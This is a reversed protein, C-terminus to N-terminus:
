ANLPFMVKDRKIDTHIKWRTIGSLAAGAGWLQKIRWREVGCGLALSVIGGTSEVGKMNHHHVTTSSELECLQAQVEGSELRGDDMTLQFCGVVDDGNACWQRGVVCNAAGSSSVSFVPSSSASIRAFFNRSNAAWARESASCISIFRTLALNSLSWPSSLRCDLMESSSTLSTWFRISWNCLYKSEDSAVSGVVAVVVVVVVVVIWDSDVVLSEGFSSDMAFLLLSSSGWIMKSFREFSSWAAMLSASARIASSKSTNLIVEM